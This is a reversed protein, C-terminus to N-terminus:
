YWDSDPRTPSQLNVPDYKQYTHIIGGLQDKSSM